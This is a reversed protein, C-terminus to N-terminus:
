DEGTLDVVETLCRHERFAERTTILGCDCKAFLKRFESETVGPYPRSQLLEMLSSQSRGGRAPLPARRRPILEENIDTRIQSDFLANLPSIVKGLMAYTRKLPRAPTVVMERNDSTHIVRLPVQENAAVTKTLLLCNLQEICVEFLTNNSPYVRDATCASM